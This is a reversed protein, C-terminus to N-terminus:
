RLWKFVTLFISSLILIFIIIYFIFVFVQKFTFYLITKMSLFSLQLSYILSILILIINWPKPIAWFIASASFPLFSLLFIDKNELQELDTEGARLKLLLIDLHYVFFLVILYFAISSLIGDHVKIQVESSFFFGLIYIQFCNALLKFIPAFLILKFHLTFLEGRSYIKQNLFLDFSDQPSNFIDKLIKQEKSEIQM